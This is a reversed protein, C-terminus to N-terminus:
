CPQSRHAVTAFVLWAGSGDQYFTTVTRYPRAPDGPYAPRPLGDGAGASPRAPQHSGAGVTRWTAPDFCNTATAQAHAADLSVVPTTWSPKGTATVHAASAAELGVDVGGGSIGGIPTLTGEAGAPNVTDYAQVYANMFANYAGIIKAQDVSPSPSSSAQPVPKSTDPPSTCAALSGVALASAVLVALIAGGHRGARGV